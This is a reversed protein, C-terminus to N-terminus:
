DLPDLLQEYREFPFDLCCTLLEVLHFADELSQILGGSALDDRFV